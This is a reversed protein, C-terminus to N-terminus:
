DVPYHKWRVSGFQPPPVDDVRLRADLSVIQSEASVHSVASQKKRM